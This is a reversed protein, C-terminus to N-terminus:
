CQKDQYLITQDVRSDSCAIVMTKPKQGSKVLEIITSKDNDYYNKKFNEFGKKLFDVM